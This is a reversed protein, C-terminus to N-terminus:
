LAQLGSKLYWACIRTGDWRLGVHEAQSAPPLTARPTFLAVCQGGPHRVSDYVIGAEGQERLRRGYPQSAAYSDPDHLVGALGRLDALRARVGVRYCRLDIDIPPEATRALFRARHHSVEAVATALDAAAYYVGFSGDSFRSGEPNLHTFAAMIPSTGPGSIRQAPPVLQLQGVADRLRPNGLAEIAFVVDLDAPDAVTEFLAVPPFRSPILRCSDRWHLERRPAPDGAESPAAM